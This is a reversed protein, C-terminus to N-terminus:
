FLGLLWLGFLGGDLVLDVVDALGVALGWFLDAFVIVWFLGDLFVM